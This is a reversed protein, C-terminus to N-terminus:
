FPVYQEKRRMYEMREEYDEITERLNNNEEQLKYIEDEWESTTKEGNAELLANGLVLSEDKGIKLITDISANDFTVKIGPTGLNQEVTIGISEDRLDIVSQM